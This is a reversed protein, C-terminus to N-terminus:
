SRYRHGKTRLNVMNKFIKFFQFIEFYSSWTTPSSTCNDSRVCAGVVDEVAGSSVVVRSLVSQM